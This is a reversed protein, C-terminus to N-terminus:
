HLVLPWARKGAGLRRLMLLLWAVEAASAQTAIYPILRHAPPWTVPQQWGAALLAPGIHRRFVPWCQAISYALELRLATSPLASQAQTILLRFDPGAVRHLVWVGFHLAAHAQPTLPSTPQRPPIALVQRPALALPVLATLAPDAQGLDDAPVPSRRAPTRYSRRSM